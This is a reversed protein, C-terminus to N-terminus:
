KEVCHPNGLLGGNIIYYCLLIFFFSIASALLFICYFYSIISFLTRADTLDKKCHIAMGYIVLATAHQVVRSQPYQM